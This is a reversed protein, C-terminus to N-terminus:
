DYSGEEGIAAVRGGAGAIAEIVPEFVHKEINQDCKLFVTRAKPNTAEKLLAGLQGELAKATTKSGNLFVDGEHDIAVSVQSDEIQDIVDSKPPELKIATEKVFNSTLVFFIILLFAIDGISAVPPEVPKKRTRSKKM